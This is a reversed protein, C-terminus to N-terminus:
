RQSTNVQVNTCERLSPDRQVVRKYASAWLLRELNLVTLLVGNVPFYVFVAHLVERFEKQFRGRWHPKRIGRPALLVNLPRAHRPGRFHACPTFDEGFVTDDAMRAFLWFAHELSEHGRIGQGIGEM